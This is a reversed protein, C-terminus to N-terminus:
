SSVNSMGTCSCESAAGSDAPLIQSVDPKLLAGRRTLNAGRTPGKAKRSGSRSEAPWALTIAECAPTCPSRLLRPAARTITKPTRKDSVTRCVKRTYRGDSM